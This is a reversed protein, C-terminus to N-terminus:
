CGLRQLMDEFASQIRFVYENKHGLIGAVPEPHVFMMPNAEFVVIRGDAAISFDIGAYALDLRKGISSLAHMGASGFVAEPSRLFTKEEELKWPHSEMEATYYHVIWNRSIALHYPYPKGDIFIVRYKRYFSDTSVFDVFRSLYVPGPRSTRIRALEDRTRAVELGEGGHADVPRVTLPLENLISDDWEKSSPFRWVPPLIINDIGKLLDPLENRATRAVKDPPNLLPKACSKAFRTLPGISQGILDPDGMANFVLDHDPLDSTKDDYESEITWSVRSNVTAPFLFEVTPVNGVKTTYLLLV